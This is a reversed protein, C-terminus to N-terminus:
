HLFFWDVLGTWHNYVAWASSIQLSIVKISESCVWKGATGQTTAHHVAIVRFCLRRGRGARVRLLYGYSPMIHLDPKLRTGQMTTCCRTLTILLKCFPYDTIFSM